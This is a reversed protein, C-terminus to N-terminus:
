VHLKNPREILVRANFDRQIKQGSALVVELTNATELGFRDLGGLYDTMKRLLDLAAPEVQTAQARGETPALLAFSVALVVWASGIM